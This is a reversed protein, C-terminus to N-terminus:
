GEWLRTVKKGADTLGYTWEGGDRVGAPEVLGMSILESLAAKVEDISAEDWDGFNV